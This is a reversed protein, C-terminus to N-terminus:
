NLFSTYLICYYTYTVMYQAHIFEGMWSSIMEDFTLDVHNLIAPTAIDILETFDDVPLSHAM